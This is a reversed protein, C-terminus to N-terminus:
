PESSITECRRASHLRARTHLVAYSIIHYADLYKKRNHLELLARSIVMLGDRGEELEPPYDAKRKAPRADPSQSRKQGLQLHGTTLPSLPFPLVLFATLFLLTSHAAPEPILPFRSSDM